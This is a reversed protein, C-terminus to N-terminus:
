YILEVEIGEGENADDIMRCLAERDSIEDLLRRKNDKREDATMNEIISVLEMDPLAPETKPEKEM